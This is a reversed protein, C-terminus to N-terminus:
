KTILALHTYYLSRLFFFICVIINLNVGVFYDSEVSLTASYLTGFKASDGNFTLNPMNKSDGMLTVFPKNKPITIKENYVGGGVYIIVRKTNSAPISDIAESIKKFDGGNAMVKVIKPDGDEAKVLDPDLSSKRDALPKVNDQFWKDVASKDSPIVPDDAMSVTAALLVTTIMMLAAHISMRKEIGAM